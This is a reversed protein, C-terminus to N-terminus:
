AQTISRENNSFIKSGSLCEPFFCILAVLGNKRDYKGMLMYWSTLKSISCATCVTFLCHGIKWVTSFIPWCVGSKDSGVLYQFYLYIGEELLTCFYQRFFTTRGCLCSVFADSLVAVVHVSIVFCGLLKCFRENLWWWIKVQLIGSNPNKAFRFWLLILMQLVVWLKTSARYKTITYNCLLPKQLHNIEMKIEIVFCM